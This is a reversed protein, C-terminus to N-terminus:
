GMMGVEDLAREIMAALGPGDELGLREGDFRFRIADEDLALIWPAPDRGEEAARSAEDADMSALGLLLAAHSDATWQRADLADALASLAAATM